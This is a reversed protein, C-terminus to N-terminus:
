SRARGSLLKAGIVGGITPFLTFVIFSVLVIQLIGSPNRFANVMLEANVDAGRAKMEELLKSAASQDSVVLVITTLLVLLIVFAFLGTMWGLRAGSGATMPMGTRRKYLYVSLFGAAVLWVLPLVLIPGSLASAFFSLLAVILGIRVAVPNRFGPEPIAVAKQAVAVVVPEAEEPEPEPMEFQPKGCKHCFRADPPLKAGCTCVEPVGETECPHKARSLTARPTVPRVFRSLRTAGPSCERSLAIFTREM